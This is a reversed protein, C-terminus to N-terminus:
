VMSARAEESLCYSVLFTCIYLLKHTVKLFQESFGHNPVIYRQSTGNCGRVLYGGYCINRGLKM